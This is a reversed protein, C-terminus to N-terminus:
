ETGGIKDLNVIVRDECREIMRHSESFASDRDSFVIVVAEGNEALTVLADLLTPAVAEHEFVVFLDFTDIMRPADPGDIPNTRNPDNINGLTSYEGEFGQTTQAVVHTASPPGVLCVSFDAIFDNSLSLAKRHSEYNTKASRAEFLLSQGSDRRNGVHSHKGKQVAIKPVRSNEVIDIKRKM